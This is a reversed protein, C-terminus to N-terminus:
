EGIAWSESTLFRQELTQVLVGILFRVSLGTLYIPQKGSRGTDPAQADRESTTKPDALRWETQDPQPEEKPAPPERADVMGDLPNSVQLVQIRDELDELGHTLRFLSVLNANSYPVEATECVFSLRAHFLSCVQLTYLSSDQVTNVPTVAQQRTLRPRPRVRKTYRTTQMRQKTEASLCNTWTQFHSSVCSKLLM